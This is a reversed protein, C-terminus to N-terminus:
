RSFVMHTPEIGLRECHQRYLTGYSDRVYDATTFGLEIATADIWAPEGELELFYGIPTEDVLIHGPAGAKQYTSRYKEYRFKVEYGLRDFIARLTGGSAVTTELEERSKHPGEEPPGKFTLVTSRDVERLRLLKRASRLSWDPSDYVENSEFDRQGEISYGAQHIRSLIPELADIRM